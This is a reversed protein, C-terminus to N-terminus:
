IAVRTCILQVDRRGPLDNNSVLHHKILTEERVALLVEDLLQIFPIVLEVNEVLRGGWNLPELVVRGHAQDLERFHM